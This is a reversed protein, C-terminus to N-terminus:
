NIRPEPGHADDIPGGYFRFAETQGYWERAALWSKRAAELTSTSPKAVLADITRRMAKASALSDDYSAAVISAYHAVVAERTVPQACVMAAWLMALAALVAQKRIM